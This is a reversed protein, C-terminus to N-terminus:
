SVAKRISFIASVLLVWHFSEVDQMFNTSLNALFVYLIILLPLSDEINGSKSFYSASKKIASIFVALLLVLGVIGLNLLTDMFGSHGNKIEFIWGQNATVSKRFDEMAWIAGFGHGIVPSKSVATEILHEWLPIRGTLNPARNFLRFVSDANAFMALAIALSAGIIIYYHKPALRKRIKLWFFLILQIGNLAVLTMLGAASLSFGTIILSLIYLAACAAIVIKKSTLTKLAWNLFIINALAMYSGTFNKHWYIGRWSGLHPKAMIAANPFFVLLIVSAIVTVASFWFLLVRWQKPSFYAGIFIALATSIALVLIHYITSAAYVSWAASIFAFLIFLVLAPPTELFVGMMKKRYLILAAFIVALFLLPLESGTHGYSCFSLPDNIDSLCLWVGKNTLAFTLAVTLVALTTELKKWPM